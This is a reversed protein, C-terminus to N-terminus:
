RIRLGRHLAPGRAARPASLVDARHAFSALTLEPGSHCTTCQGRGTFIQLGAQEQGTLANQQDFRTDDSVLTSEYAQIALGFFLAFNAEAQTFGDTM